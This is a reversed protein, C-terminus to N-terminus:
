QWRAKPPIWKCQWKEEYYAKNKQFLENYVNDELKKFSASGFHHIFTDEALVTRLGKKHVAMSYDDDEFMGVGYNEDLLGIEDILKRPFMTCFM